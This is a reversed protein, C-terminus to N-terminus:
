LVKVYQEILNLLTEKEELSLNSAKLGEYNLTVNDKFAETKNNNNTKTNSLTTLVVM